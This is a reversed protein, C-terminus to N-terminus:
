RRFGALPGVPALTSIPDGAHSSQAGHQVVVATVKPTVESRSPIIVVAAVIAAVAAAAGALWGVRRPRRRTIPVVTPETSRDGAVADVAEVNAVVAELFGAPAHRTALGRVAARAARVEELEARWEASEALRIEVAAREDADLEGDLYGSLMEPVLDFDRRASM